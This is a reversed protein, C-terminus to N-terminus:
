KAYEDDYEVCWGAANFKALIETTLVDKVWEHYRSIFVTDLSCISQIVELLAQLQFRYDESWLITLSRFSPFMATWDTRIVNDLGKPDETEVFNEMILDAFM